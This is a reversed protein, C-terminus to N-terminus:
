VSPLYVLLTHASLTSYEFYSIIEVVKNREAEDLSERIEKLEADVDYDKGRLRILASRAAAENGKKMSYVPTEPQLFFVVGFALPFVACVVTYAFVDAFKAIVYDLLIGVTLLLQFYSGLAGRISKEAIESTYLPASVCFAGGSFGIIFRGAYIMGLGTSFIILLWGAMFPPVLALMTIKRGFKDCLIGIPVCSFLAGLTAFSGIWGQVSDDMVIENFEGRELEKAINATWGLVTGCAVAGLCVSFNFNEKNSICCLQVIARHKM